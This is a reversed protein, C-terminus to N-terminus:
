VPMQFPVLDGPLYLPHSPHGAKTLRLCHLNPLLTRVESDRGLFTGNTGWAAVVISADRALNKLTEDNETGVPECADRMDSPETARFAFLNTMCLGAYGWAKAFGICRRITPDDMTEDATSPNLGVFMAYGKAPDDWRRWLSYRFLRCPSLVASGELPTSAFNTNM